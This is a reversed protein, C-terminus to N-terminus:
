RGSGKPRAAEPTDTYLVELRPRLSEDPWDAPYIEAFGVFNISSSTLVLYSGAAATDASILKQLALTVDVTLNSTGSGFRQPLLAETSSPRTFAPEGAVFSTVQFTDVFATSYLSLLLRAQNITAYPPIGAIDYQFFVQSAPVEGVRLMGPTTTGSYSSITADKLASREIISFTTGGSLRYIIDLRSSVTATIDLERAQLSVWGEGGTPVIEMQLYNSGPALRSDLQLSDLKVSVTDVSLSDLGGGDYSFSGLAQPDYDGGPNSWRVTKAANEWTVELEEFDRDLLHISFELPPQGGIRRPYLTLVGGVVETSEPLEILFTLLARMRFDGSNGAAVVANDGKNAAEGEVSVVRVARDFSLSQPDGGINGEPILILGASNDSQESCAAALIILGALVQLRFTRFPVLASRKRSNLSKFTKL